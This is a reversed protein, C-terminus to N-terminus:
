SCAVRAMCDSTQSSSRPHQAHLPWVLLIQRTAPQLFTGVSIGRLRSHTISIAWCRPSWGGAAATGSCARQITGLIGVLKLGTPCAVVYKAAWELATSSCAHLVGEPRQSCLLNPLWSFSAYERSTQQTHWHATMCESWHQFSTLELAGTCSNGHLGPGLRQQGPARQRLSHGRPSSTSQPKPDTM